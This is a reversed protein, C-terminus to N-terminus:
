FHLLDVLYKHIRYESYENGYKDWLYVHRLMREPPITVSQDTIILQRRLALVVNRFVLANLKTKIKKKLRKM